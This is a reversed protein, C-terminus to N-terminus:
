ALDFPLSPPGRPTISDTQFNEIRRHITVLRRLLPVPKLEPTVVPADPQAGFGAQCAFHQVCDQHDHHEGHELCEHNHLALAFGSAAFAMVTLALCTATKRM